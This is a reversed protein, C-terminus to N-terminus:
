GLFSILDLGLKKELSKLVYADTVKGSVVFDKIKNCISLKLGNPTSSIAECLEEINERTYNSEDMLFDYKKYMNTLAFKDLVRDDLPRLAMNKFYGKNNRWMNKLIEFTIFEIHGAKEWEYFDGTRSDKYSVNPILSIVQIEDSDNLPEAVKKKVIPEIVKEKTEENMNEDTELTISTKASEEVVDDFVSSVAPKRGAM